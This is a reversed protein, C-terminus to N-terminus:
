GLRRPPPLLSGVHRLRGHMATLVLHHRLGFVV